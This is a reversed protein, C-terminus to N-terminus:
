LKERVEELKKATEAKRGKDALTRQPRPAAKSAQTLYEAAVAYSGEEPQFDGYFYNPDIGDPNVALAKKLFIEAKHTFGAGSLFATQSYIPWRAQGASAPALNGTEVIKECPEDLLEEIPAKLCHESFLMKAGAPHMGAIAAYRSDPWSIRMLLPYFRSLRADYADRVIAKVFAEATAREPHSPDIFELDLCMPEVVSAVPLPVM